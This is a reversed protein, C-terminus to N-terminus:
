WVARFLLGRWALGSEQLAAPSTRLTSLCYPHYALRGRPTLRFSSASEGTESVGVTNASRSSRDRLSALLLHASSRLFTNSTSGSFHGPQPPSIRIMEKMVWCFRM